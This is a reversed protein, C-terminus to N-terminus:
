LSILYLIIYGIFQSRYIVLIIKQIYKEDVTGEQTFTQM